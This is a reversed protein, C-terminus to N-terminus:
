CRTQLRADSDSTNVAPPACVGQLKVRGDFNQSDDELALIGLLPRINVFHKGSFLSAFVLLWKSLKCPNPTQPFTHINILCSCRPNGLVQV